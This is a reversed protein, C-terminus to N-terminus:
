KSILGGTNRYIMKNNKYGVSKSILGGSNKFTVEGTEPDIDLARPNSPDGATHLDEDFRRQSASEYQPHLVKDVQKQIFANATDHIKDRMETHPKVINDAVLNHLHALNKGMTSGAKEAYSSLGFTFLNSLWSTPNQLFRHVEKSIIARINFNKNVENFNRLFDAEGPELVGDAELADAYKKILDLSGATNILLSARIAWRVRKDPIFKVARNTWVLFHIYAEIVWGANEQVLAPVEGLKLADWSDVIFKTAKSAANAVQDETESKIKQVEALIEDKNEKIESATEVVKDKVNSVKVKAELEIYKTKAQEYLAKQSETWSDKAAEMEDLLEALQRLKEDM